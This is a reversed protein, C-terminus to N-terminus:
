VLVCGSHLLTYGCRCVLMNALNLMEAPGSDGKDMTLDAGSKAIM